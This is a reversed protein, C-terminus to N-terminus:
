INFIYGKCNDSGCYCVGRTKHRAINHAIASTNLEDGDANSNVDDDENNIFIGGSYDITLEEGAKISRDAFYCLKYISPDQNCTTVTWTSCNPDCSHNILRSLNGYYAADITYIAEGTENFDLDFLYSRGIEDYKEGRRLSEEQDIVEGTYEMLYTGKPIHKAAKVGWGRGDATKFIILPYVRPQQTVRNLCNEDCECLENCEYIMQRVNIRLRRKSGVLKYAFNHQLSSPCCKSERSCGDICKCGLVRTEDTPVNKLENPFVNERAYNFSEFISFDVNNEVTVSFTNLEKEMIETEIKKHAETQTLQLEHFHNLLVWEQFKNRFKSYYYTEHKILEYCYQYVQFVDSNFGKLKNLIDTKPKEKYETLKKKQKELVDNLTQKIDDKISATEVSLFRDLAECQGVHEYPEYTNTDESYDKWKVLFSPEDNHLTISRIEEVEYDVKSVSPTSETSFRRRRNSEYAKSDFRPPPVASRRPRRNEISSNGSVSSTESLDVSCRDIDVSRRSYIKFPQLNFPYSSQDISKPSDLFNILSESKRRIDDFIEQKRKHRAENNAARRENRKWSMHEFNKQRMYTKLNEKQNKHKTLSYVDTKSLKDLKVVPFLDRLTLVIPLFQNEHTDDFVKSEDTNDSNEMLQLENSDVSNSLPFDECQEDSNELSTTEQKINHELIRECEDMIFGDQEM